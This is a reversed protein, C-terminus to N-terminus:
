IIPEPRLTFFHLVVVGVANAGMLTFWQFFLLTADVGGGDRHLRQLECPSVKNFLYRGNHFGGPFCIFVNKQWIAHKSYLLLQTLAPWAILTPMYGALARQYPVDLRYILVHAWSFSNVDWVCVHRCHTGHIASLVSFYCTGYLLLQCASLTFYQLPLFVISAITVSIVKNIQHALKGKIKLNNSKAGM